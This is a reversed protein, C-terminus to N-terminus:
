LNKNALTDQSQNADEIFCTESQERETLRGPCGVYDDKQLCLLSQLGESDQLASLSSFLSCVGQHFGSVPFREYGGNNKM